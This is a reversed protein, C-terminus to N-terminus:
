SAQEDISREEEEALIVEEIIEMVRDCVRKERRSDSGLSRREHLTEYLYTLQEVNFSSLELSM